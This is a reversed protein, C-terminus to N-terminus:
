TKTGRHITVIGGALIQFSVGRWGASEILESLEDPLPFERITNGLYRYAAPNSGVIYAILPTCKMLYFYYFKAFFPNVPQSFELCIFCGGPKTVRFFETIAKFRDKINRLGFTITVADFQNDNYPLNEANGQIFTIKDECNLKRVKERGINLLESSLDLGEIQVKGEWIRNLEITMDGTGTCVDLIKKCDIKKTELAVKRRWGFDLGFSLIHNLLDYHRAIGSFMQEVKQANRIKHDIHNM